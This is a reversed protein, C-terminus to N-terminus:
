DIQRPIFVCCSVIVDVILPATFYFVVRLTDPNTMICPAPDDPYQVASNGIMACATSANARLDNRISSIQKCQVVFCALILVAYLGGIVKNMRWLGYGTPNEAIIM